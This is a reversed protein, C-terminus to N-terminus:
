QYIKDIKRALEFDKKTVANASHTTLSIEVKNYVNYWNPHHDAREALMAVQTMFAFAQRFNAFKFSRSIKQGNNETEGFCWDTLDSPIEIATSKTM